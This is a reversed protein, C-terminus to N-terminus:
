CAGVGTALQTYSLHHLQQALPLDMVRAKHHIFSPQLVSYLPNSYPSNSYPLDSYPTCLIPTRLTPHADDM